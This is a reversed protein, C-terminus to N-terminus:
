YMKFEFKKMINYVFGYVILKDIMNELVVCLMFVGSLFFSIWLFVSLLFDFSNLCEVVFVEFNVGVGWLLFIKGVRM